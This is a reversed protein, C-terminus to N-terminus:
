SIKKQTKWEGAVRHVRHNNISYNYSKSPHEFRWCVYKKTPFDPLFLSKILFQHTVTRNLVQHQCLFKNQAIQKTHLQKSATVFYNKPVLHFKLKEHSHSFFSYFPVPLVPVQLESSDFTFSSPRRSFIIFTLYYAICHLM